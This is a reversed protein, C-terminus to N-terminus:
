RRLAVEGAVGFVGRPDHVDAIAALRLLTEPDYAQALRAPDATDVFNALLASRSWPRVATMLRDATAVISPADDDLVATVGLSYPCDRHSFASPQTPPDALRGGLRRIEVTTLRSGSNPGVAGVIADVAEDPLAALLAHDQHVPAPAVADGLARAIDRYPIAGVGDLTVPAVQRMDALWTEANEHDAVVGRGALTAIKVAVVHRGAIVTPVHPLDPVNTLSLSTTYLNPLGASWRAWEHVVQAHDTTFFLTGGYVESIEFLRLEASTIVGIASKGGRMAWFLDPNEEASATRLVGDGTVVELALVHDSAAGFTGVLPGIGGGSLHGIVGVTGTAGTVPALAHHHAADLLQQTQVGAGIRATCSDPDVSCQQLRGTHVVIVDDGQAVSGHGTAHVAIRLGHAGAWGVTTSIDKADAAIVVGAPATSIAANWPRAIDYGPQGPEALEGRLQARLDAFDM